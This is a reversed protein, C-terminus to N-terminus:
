DVIKNMDIVFTVDENKDECHQISAAIQALFLAVVDMSTLCDRINGPSEYHYTGSIKDRSIYIKAERTERTKM